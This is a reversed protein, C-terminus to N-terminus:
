GTKDSKVLKISSNTTYIWLSIYKKKHSPTISDDVSIFVVVCLQTYCFYRLLYFIGIVKTIWAWFGQTHIYITCIGHNWQETVRRVVASATNQCFQMGYCGSRCLHLTGAYTADNSVTILAFMAYNLSLQTGM